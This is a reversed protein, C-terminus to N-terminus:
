QVEHVEKRRCRWNSTGKEVFACDKACSCRCMRGRIEYGLHLLACAQVHHPNVRDTEFMTRGIVYLAAHYGRPPCRSTQFLAPDWAGPESHCVVVSPLGAPSPDALRQLVQVVCLFSAPPDPSQGPWRAPM